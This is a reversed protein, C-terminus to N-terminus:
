EADPITCFSEYHDDTYYWVDPDTESGGGTVIRKAGRHGIGPTDVTYERYYNKDQQPLVGEYNGFRVNDNDPYDYPGGALIDQATEEAQEPLSDMACTPLDDEESGHKAVDGKDGKESAQETQGGNSSGLDIGFYGAVLVLVAGGILAPLSKRSPSSQSM